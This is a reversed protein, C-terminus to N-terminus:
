SEKKNINHIKKRRCCLCNKIGSLKNSIYSYCDDIKKGIYSKNEYEITKNIERLGNFMRKYKKGEKAYFEKKSDEFNQVLLKLETTNPLKTHLEKLDKEAEDFNKKNIYALCRRYLAKTNDKDAFLVKSCHNIADSWNTLKIDIYSLNLNSPVVIERILVDLSAQELKYENRLAKIKKIAETYNKIAEDYNTQKLDEDAEKKLEYAKAKCDEIKETINNSDDISTDNTSM